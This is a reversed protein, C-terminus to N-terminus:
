ILIRESLKKFADEFGLNKLIILISYSQILNLQMFNKNGIINFLLNLSNFIDGKLSLSNALFFDKIDITKVDSDITVKFLKDVLGQNLDTSLIMVMLMKKMSVSDVTITNEFQELKNELSYYDISQISLFESLDIALNRFDSEPSKYNKNLIAKAKDFIERSQYM